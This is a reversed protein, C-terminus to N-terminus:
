KSQSSLLASHRLKTYYIAPAQRWLVYLLTSILLETLYAVIYTM